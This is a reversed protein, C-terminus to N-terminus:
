PVAKWGTWPRDGRLGRLCALRHAAQEGYQEPDQAAFQCAMTTMRLERIDRLVLFGAWQTVDHGYADCYATWDTTSMRGTTVRSIATSVLDWEPPGLSCREFDLLVVKGDITRVVNGRWADGHVVSRPLGPPLEAYAAELEATRQRMWARDDETVTMSMEIRERLRVFPALETLEIDKPPALRHLERIATGVDTDTGYRHEPLEHWFSVSRGDVIIPQDVDRLIRVASVGSDELWRAVGVEKRAAADQGARAIRAVVKGPLRYIANEGLRIVEAGTADLGVTRAAADLVARSNDTM